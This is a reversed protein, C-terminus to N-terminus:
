HWPRASCKPHSLAWRKLLLPSRDLPRDLDTRRLPIQNSQNSMVRGVKGRGDPGGGARVTARAASVPAVNEPIDPIDTNQGTLACESMRHAPTFGTRSTRKAIYSFNGCLDIFTFCTNSPIIKLYQNTIRIPM